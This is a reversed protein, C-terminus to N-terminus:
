LLFGRGQAARLRRRSRRLGSYAVQNVAALLTAALNVKIAAARKAVGYDCEDETIKIGTAKSFPEFQAKRETM